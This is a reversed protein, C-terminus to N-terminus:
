AEDLCREEYVWVIDGFEVCAPCNPCAEDGCGMRARHPFDHGCGHKRKCSREKPCIYLPENM